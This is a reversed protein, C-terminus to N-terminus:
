ESDFLNSQTLTVARDVGAVWDVDRDVSTVAREVGAVARDVGAVRAVARDVWAVGTLGYDEERNMNLCGLGLLILDGWFGRDGMVSKTVWLLRSETMM